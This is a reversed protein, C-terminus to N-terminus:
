DGHQEGKKLPIGPIRSSVAKPKAILSESQFLTSPMAELAEPDGNEAQRFAKLVDASWRNGLLLGDIRFRSIGAQKMALFDMGSMFPKDSLVHTGLEDQWVPLRFDRMKEQITYLHGAQFADEKHIFRLYNEILPRRSEMWTYHGAALVEIQDSMGAQRCVAAAKEIEELSMEHSLSGAQLGLGAYFCIDEGSCLLTEPQMILLSCVDQGTDKEFQRALAIYGEDAIYLGDVGAQVIRGFLNRVAELRVQEIMAQANVFTKVNRRAFWDVVAALKEVPIEARSRASLGPVGVIVGDPKQELLAELNEFGDLAVLFM